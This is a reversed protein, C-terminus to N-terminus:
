TISKYGNMRNINILKILTIVGSLVGEEIENLKALTM